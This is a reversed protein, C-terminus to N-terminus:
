PGAEPSIALCALSFRGGVIGPATSRTVQGQGHQQRARRGRELRETLGREGATLCSASSPRSKTCRSGPAAQGLQAHKVTDRGRGEVFACEYPGARPSGCHRRPREALHKRGARHRAVERDVVHGQPGHVPGLVGGAAGVDRARELALRGNGDGQPALLRPPRTSARTRAPPPCDVGDLVRVHAAPCDCSEPRALAVAVARPLRRPITV